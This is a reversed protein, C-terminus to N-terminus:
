SDHHGQGEQTLLSSSVQKTCALTTNAPFDLGSILHHQQVLALMFSERAIFLTRHHNAQPLFKIFIQMEEQSFHLATTFIYIQVFHSFWPPKLSNLHQM